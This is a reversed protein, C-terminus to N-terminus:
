SRWCAANARDTYNARPSPGSHKNQKTEQTATLSLASPVAPVMQGITGAGSLLHRDQLLRHFSQCPFGFYESFVQELAMKDEMFGVHGSGPEFVPRRPPFGSVLRM